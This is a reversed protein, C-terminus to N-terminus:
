RSPERREDKSTGLRASGELSALERRRAAAIRERVAEVLDADAVRGILRPWGGHGEPWEILSIEMM